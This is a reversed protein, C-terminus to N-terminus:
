GFFELSDLAWLAKKIYDDSIIPWKFGLRYLANVTFRNNTFTEVIKEGEKNAYAVLGIIAESDAEKKATEALTESFHQESVIDINFGYERM